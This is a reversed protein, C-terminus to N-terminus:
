VMTTDDFYASRDKRYIPSSYEVSGRGFFPVGRFLAGIDSEYETEDESLEGEEAGEIMEGKEAEESGVEAIVEQEFETAEDTLLLERDFEVYDYAWDGVEEMDVGEIESDDNSRLYLGPIRNIVYLIALSGFFSYGGAALSDILQQLLQKWYRNVWGGQIVTYGDLHAVYNAAFLGTLLNGIFGGIAHIGFIDLADDIGLRVSIRSGLNTGVGAVVGFIVASWPPVYGSGPTIAVLGAVVGSCFGVVSYSRLRYYDM